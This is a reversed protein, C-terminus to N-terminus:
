LMLGHKPNSPLYASMTAVTWRYLSLSVRITVILGFVQNINGPLFYTAMGLSNPMNVQAAIILAKVSVSIGVTLAAAAVLFATVLAYHIAKEYAFRTILWTAFSTFASTFLGV